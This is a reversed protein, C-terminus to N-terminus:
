CRSLFMRKDFMYNLEKCFEKAYAMVANIMKMKGRGGAGMMFMILQKQKRMGTMRELEKQAQQINIMYRAPTLHNQELTTDKTMKLWRM